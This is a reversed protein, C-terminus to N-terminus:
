RTLFLPMCLAGMLWGSGVMVVAIIGVVVVVVVTVSVIISVVNCGVVMGVGFFWEM